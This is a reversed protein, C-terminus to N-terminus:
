YVPSLVYFPLYPDSTVVFYPGPPAVAADMPNTGAQCLLALLSAITVTIAIAVPRRM